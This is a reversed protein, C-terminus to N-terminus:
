PIMLRGREPVLSICIDIYTHTYIHSIIAIRQINKDCRCDQLRWKLCVCIVCALGVKALGPGGDLIRLVQITQVVLVPCLGQRGDKM